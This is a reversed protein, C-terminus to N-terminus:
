DLLKLNLLFYKKQLILKKFENRKIERVLAKKKNENNEIRGGFLGLIWYFINKKLDRLQLLYKREFTIM